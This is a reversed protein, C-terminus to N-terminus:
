LLSKEEKKNGQTSARCKAENQHNFDPTFRGAFRNDLSSRHM